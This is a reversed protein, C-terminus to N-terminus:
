VAGAQSPLDVAAVSPRGHVSLSRRREARDPDSARWATAARGAGRTVPSSCDVYGLHNAIASEIRLQLPAGIL